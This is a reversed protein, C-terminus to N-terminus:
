GIYIKYFLLYFHLAGTMHCSGGDFNILVALIKGIASYIVSIMHSVSHFQFLFLIIKFPLIRIGSTTLDATEM